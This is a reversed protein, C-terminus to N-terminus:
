YEFVYVYYVRGSLRPGGPESNYGMTKYSNELQLAEEYTLGYRLVKFYPIAHGLENEWERKRLVPDRATMGVYKM